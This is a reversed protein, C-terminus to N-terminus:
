RDSVGPRYIERALEDQQGGAGLVDSRASVAPSSFISRAKDNGAVQYPQAIARNGAYGSDAGVRYPAEIAGASVNDAHATATFTPVTPVTLAMTLAAARSLTTFRYSM